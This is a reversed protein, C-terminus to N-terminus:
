NQQNSAGKQFIFHWLNNGNKRLGRVMFVTAHDAFKPRKEYGVDEFGVICDNKQDYQLNPNLAMEDFILCCCRDKEEMQQVAAQLNSFIQNNIGCLFPLKSLIDVL